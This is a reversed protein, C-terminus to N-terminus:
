RSHAVYNPILTANKHINFYFAELKHILKKTSVPVPM